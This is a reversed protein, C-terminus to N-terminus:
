ATVKEKVPNEAAACAQPDLHYYAPKRSMTIVGIDPATINVPHGCALCKREFKSSM